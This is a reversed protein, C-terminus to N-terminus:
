SGGCAKLYYIILDADRAAIWFDDLTKRYASNLIEKSYKIELKWNKSPIQLIIKDEKTNAFAM